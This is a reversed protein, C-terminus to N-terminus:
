CDAQRSVEQLAWRKSLTYGNIYECEVLLRAVEGVESAWGLRSLPMTELAPIPMTSIM